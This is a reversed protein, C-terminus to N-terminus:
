KEKRKEDRKRHHYLILLTRPSSCTSRHFHALDGSLRHAAVDARSISNLSGQGTHPHPPISMSGLHGNDLGLSHDLLKNQSCDKSQIRFCVVTSGACPSIVIVYLPSQDSHIPTFAAMAGQGTCYPHKNGRYRREVRRISCYICLFHICAAM